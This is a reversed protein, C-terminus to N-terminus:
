ISNILDESEHWTAKFDAESIDEWACRFRGLPRKGEPKRVSIKYANRM